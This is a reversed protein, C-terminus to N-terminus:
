QTEGSKVEAMSRKLAHVPDDILKSLEARTEPIMM